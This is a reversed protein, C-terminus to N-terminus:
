VNLPAFNCKQAYELLREAKSKCGGCGTTVGTLKVLEELTTIKHTIITNYADRYSVSKCFCLMKDYNISTQCKLDELNLEM